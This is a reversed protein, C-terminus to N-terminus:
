VLFSRILYNSSTLFPELKPEIGILDENSINNLLDKPLFILLGSIFETNSLEEEFAYHNTIHGQEDMEIIHNKLFHHPYIFTFHAYIRKNM